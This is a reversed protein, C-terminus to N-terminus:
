SRAREKVVKVDQVVNAAAQEPVPPMARKLQWRSLLAALGGVAVLAAGIVVAALWAPLALALALVAAAILTAVGLLAVVGAMGLLGGGIGLRKGKRQLELTALRIEDRALRSLQESLDRVLQAVSRDREDGATASSGAVSSGPSDVSM